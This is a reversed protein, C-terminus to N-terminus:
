PKRIIEKDIKNIVEGNINSTRRNGIAVWRINSILLQVVNGM